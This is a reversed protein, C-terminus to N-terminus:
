SDLMQEKFLKILEYTKVYEIHIGLKEVLNQIPKLYISERLMVTNPYVGQELIMEIFKNYVIEPYQKYDVQTELHQFVERGNSNELIMLLLPFVFEDDKELVMDLHYADIEWKEYNMKCKKKIRKVMIENINLEEYKQNNSIEKVTTYNDKYNGQNDFERVLVNELVENGFYKNQVFFEKIMTLYIPLILKLITVTENSLIDTFVGRRSVSICPYTKAGRFNIKSQKIFNMDISQVDTRDELFINIGNFLGLLENSSEYSGGILDSFLKLTNNGKYFSFGYEVGGEGRILMYWPEDFLELKIGVIDVNTVFEWPKLESLEKIMLYLQNLDEDKIKLDTKNDSEEMIKKIMAEVTTDSNKFNEDFFQQSFDLDEDELYYEDEDAKLAEFWSDKNEKIFSNYEKYDLKSMVGIEEFFKYLKNLSAITEKMGNKTSWNCKKIYFYGLYENINVWGQEAEIPEERLLFENIFFDCNFYHKRITNASLKKNVLYEEFKDLLKTNKERLIGVKAEYDEFDFM